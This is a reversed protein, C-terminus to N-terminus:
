NTFLQFNIQEMSEFNVNRLLFTEISTPTRSFIDFNKSFYNDSFDLEVITEGLFQDFNAFNVKQLKIKKLSKLVSGNAFLIRNLSLDLEFIAQSTPLARMDFSELSNNAMAFTSLQSLGQFSGVELLKIQNDNLNLSRLNM